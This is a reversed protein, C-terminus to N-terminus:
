DYLPSLEDLDDFVGHADDSEWDYNDPDLRVRNGTKRDRAEIYGGNQIKDWVWNQVERWNDTYLDDELGRFRDDYYSDVEYRADYKPDFDDDEDSENLSEDYEDPLYNLQFYLIKKILVSLEEELEDLKMSHEPSVDGIKIGLSSQLEDFIKDVAGEVKQKIQYSFDHKDSYDIYAEFLNEDLKM